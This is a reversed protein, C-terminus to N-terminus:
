EEAQEILAWGKFADPNELAANIRDNVTYDPSPSNENARMQESIPDYVEDDFEVVSVFWRGTSGLFYRAEDTGTDCPMYSLWAGTEEGQMVEWPTTMEQQEPGALISLEVLNQDDECGPELMGVYDAYSQEFLPGLVGNAETVPEGFRDVAVEFADQRAQEADATARDNSWLRVGGVSLLVTVAAVSLLMAAKPRADGSTSRPTRQSDVPAVAPAGAVQDLAAAFQEATVYRAAPDMETARRLVAALGEPLGLEGPDPVGDTCIRNILAALGSDGEDGMPHRGTALALLTLGLSYVDSRAGATGSELVEPAAYMITVAMTETATSPEVSTAAGFDALLPRGAGDILVNSPKVDRHLVGAAHAAGLARALSEGLTAVEAPAVPGFRDLRDALSGGPAFPLVLCRRGDPLEVQDLVGLVGDIDGIHESARAQREFASSSPGDFIKIAVAAGDSRRRASYVTATGGRGLLTLREYGELGGIPVDAGSAGDPGDVWSPDDDM